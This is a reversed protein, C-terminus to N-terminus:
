MWTVGFNESLEINVEVSACTNKYSGELLHRGVGYIRIVYWLGKMDVRDYAEEMDIFAAFWSDKELYKEVIIKLAFIQDM